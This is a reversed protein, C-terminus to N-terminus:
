IYLRRNLQRVDSSDVAAVTVTTDVPHTLFYYNKTNSNGLRAPVIKQSPHPDFDHSGCKSSDVFRNYYIIVFFM